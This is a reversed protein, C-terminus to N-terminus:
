YDGYSFGGPLVVAAVDPLTGDGHWVLATEAGLAELALAADRDDNSGPFVVVAIKPRPEASM